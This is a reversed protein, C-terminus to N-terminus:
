ANRTYLSGPGLQVVQVTRPLGAPWDYRDDSVSRVALHGPRSNFAGGNTPVRANGLSSFGFWIGVAAVAATAAISPLVRSVRRRRLSFEIPLRIEELPAARLMQTYAAVDRAYAACAECRQLHRKLMRREFLSLEGDLDLSVFHAARECIRPRIEM